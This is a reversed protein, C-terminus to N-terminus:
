PWLWVCALASCFQLIVNVEVQMRVEIDIFSGFPLVQQASGISPKRHVPQYGPADHQDLATDPGIVWTQGGLVVM